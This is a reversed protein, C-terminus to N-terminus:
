QTGKCVPYTSCGLFTEPQGKGKRVAMPATCRRCTPIRAALAYAERARTALREIFHKIRQEESMGEPATRLIKSTKKLTFWGVRGTRANAATTGILIRVADKGVARCMRGGQTISSYIRFKREFTGRPALTVEFVRERGEVKWVTSGGSQRIGKDITACLEEIAAAPIQIFKGM